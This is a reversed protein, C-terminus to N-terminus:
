MCLLNSSSEKEVRCAAHKIRCPEIMGRDLAGPVHASPVRSKLFWRGCLISSSRKGQAM